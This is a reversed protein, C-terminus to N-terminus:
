RIKCFPKRQHLTILHDLHAFFSGIVKQEEKQPILYENNGYDKFYIHPITSGSFAQGLDFRTLLSFIFSLDSKDAILGGMTGIFMTNEPMKRIRGVGAGDKIITIYKARMPEADTKGIISNADYLYYNGNENADSATLNSSRYIVM